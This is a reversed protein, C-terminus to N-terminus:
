SNTIPQWLLVSNQNQLDTESLALFTKRCQNMNNPM